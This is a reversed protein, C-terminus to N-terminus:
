SKGWSDLHPGLWGVHVKGTSGRTDDYYHIRPAPPRGGKVRIHEQMLVAGSDDVAKSVPLIRLRRFRPENLTMATEAPAVWSAPIRFDGVGQECYLLFSGDFDGSAKLQAYNDLAELALWARGATSEDGHADLDEAGEDVSGPIEIMSLTERAGQLVETCLVPEFRPPVDVVTMSAAAAGLQNRLFRLQRGLDDNQRLLDDNDAVQLDLSDRLETVTSRLDDATAQLDRIEDDAVLLLDEYENGSRDSVVLARASTRWVPPPPTEASRQLLSPGLIRAAFNAPRGELRRFPVFRHRSPSDADSGAGPLYVRAAGSYVDMGEGVSELMARSFASVAGEGLVYVSAVGALRRALEHGREIAREAGGDERESYSVVILPLLRDADLVLDAVLTGGDGEVVTENRGLALNGRSANEHILLTTVVGPPAPTWPVAAHEPTWRELDVWAWSASGDRIATATTKVQVGDDRNGEFVEIRTVACSDDAGSRVGVEIDHGDLRGSEVLDVADDRLKWRLWDRVHRRLREVFEGDADEIELISRYILAL